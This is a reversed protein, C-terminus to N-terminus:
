ATYCLFLLLLFLLFLLFILSFFINIILLLLVRHLLCYCIFQLVLGHDTCLWRYCFALLM